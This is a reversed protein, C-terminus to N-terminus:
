FRELSGTRRGEAEFYRFLSYAAVAYGFGVLAEKLLLIEVTSFPSGAAVLRAAAIGHTLPLFQSVVQMWGPLADIPVNIGTFLLMLFYAINAIFFVDRARLGASGLLMGFATAAAVTVVLVAALGPLSSLAPHFNLTLAGVAFGFVSVVVGNVINPLARGLFLASRNAPSALLASLTGFFRENGITMTMGYISSMCCVQVANGVVFFADDKVGSFRGLYAFFLIQFAPAGLMTPVFIWPNLWNFLARYSIYGGIFLVRVFERSARWAQESQPGADVGAVGAGATTM